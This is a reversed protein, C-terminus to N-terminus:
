RGRLGFVGSMTWRRRSFSRSVRIRTGRRHQAKKYAITRDLGRKKPDTNGIRFGSM